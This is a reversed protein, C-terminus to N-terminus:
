APANANILHQIYLIFDSINNKRQPRLIETITAQQTLRSIIGFHHQRLNMMDVQGRRYTNQQLENFAKVATLSRSAYEDVLSDPKLICVQTVPLSETTFQDHEFFGYKALHPRLKHSKVKQPAYQDITNEWLKMMPYSSVAEIKGTQENHSLVCVDDTFLKYGLDMLGCATTSKGAGSRGTFLVLGKETIIGSAHFPIKNQQHLIAAMANSLLFLRISSNDANTYPEIVIKNGHAAYYRAVNLLDLLYEKPSASMRVKHVVNEGDLKSPTAGISIVVDAKNFTTPLLEPFEIESEINLGFGWYQYSMM